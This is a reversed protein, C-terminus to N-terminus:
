DYLNVLGTIILTREGPVVDSVRDEWEVGVDGIEVDDLYVKDWVSRRHVQVPINKQRWDKYPISHHGIQESDMLVVGYISLFWDAADAGAGYDEVPIYGAVGIVDVGAAIDHSIVSASIYIMEVGAGSDIIGKAMGSIIDFGAGSDRAEKSMNVMDVGTGHDSQPVTILPAEVGAGYDPLANFRPSVIYEVGSGSDLVGKAMSVAEVGSCFDKSEKTMNTVADVGAGSDISEKTMNITDAGAGFDASQKLMNVADMGLGSDLADKAMDVTEVGAGSDKSEKYMDIEETALGHDDVYKSLGGTFYDVGVGSDAAERLMNVLEAGLGSDASPISMMTVEVGSGSDTASKAMNVTEVGAGSDSLPISINAIEASAGSDVTDKTMNITDVGSCSDDVPVSAHITAYETGSGSDSVSAIHPLMFAVIKAEGNIGSARATMKIQYSPSSVNTDYRLLPLIGSRGSLSTKELWWLVSNSIQGTASNDRQLVVDGANFASVDSTTTNDAAALGIVVVNGSLTTSLNGVTVQTGSTLAVSGTDLFSGSYVTFVCLIAYAMFTISTNNYIEVSWSQSSTTVSGLWALNVQVSWIDVGFGASFQNSSIVTTGLKLRINGGSIFYTNTDGTSTNYGYIYALAVVTSGAPYSTTLSVVTATAGSSIPVGTSNFAEAADITKIVMGQVHVSATTTGATTINVVFTYSDNGSPNTDVALLMIPKSRQGGTGLNVTVYTTRLTTAGKKIAFTGRSVGVDASIPQYVAIIVNRGGAPLSTNMTLLTKEGTSTFGPDVTTPGFVQAHTAPM